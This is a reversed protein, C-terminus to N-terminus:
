GKPGSKSPNLAERYVINRLKMVRISGNHHNEGPTAQDDIAHHLMLQPLGQLFM